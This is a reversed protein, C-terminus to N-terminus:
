APTIIFIYQHMYQQGKDWSLKKMAPGWKDDFWAELGTITAGEVICSWIPLNQTHAVVYNKRFSVIYKAQQSQINKM